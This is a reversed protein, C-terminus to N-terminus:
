KKLSTIDYRSITHLKFFSNANILKFQSTNQLQVYINTKVSKTIYKKPIRFQNKLANNYPKCTVSSLVFKLRDKVIDLNSAHM